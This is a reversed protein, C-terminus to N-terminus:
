KGKGIHKSKSNSFVDTARRQLICCWSNGQVYSGNCKYMAFLGREWNVLKERVLEWARVTNHVEVEINTPMRNIFFIFKYSSNNMYSGETQILLHQLMGPMNHLHTTLFFNNGRLLLPPPVLLLLLLLLLWLLTTLEEQFCVLSRKWWQKKRWVSLIIHRRIVTM